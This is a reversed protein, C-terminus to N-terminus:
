SILKSFIILDALSMLAASAALAWRRRADLRRIQRWYRLWLAMCAGLVVFGIANVMVFKLEERGWSWRRSLMQMAIYGLLLLNMGAGCCLGILGALAAAQRPEGLQLRLVLEEGCEPCRTGTLDRLNYGCQPCPQDRGALFSRLMADSDPPTPPRDDM